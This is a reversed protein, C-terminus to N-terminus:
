LNCLGGQLVVFFIYVRGMWIWAVGGTQAFCFFVYWGNGAWGLCIVGSCWRCGQWALGLLGVVGGLVLGLLVWLGDKYWCM